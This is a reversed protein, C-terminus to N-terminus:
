EVRSALNHERDPAAQLCSELIVEWMIERGAVGDAPVEALPLAFPEPIPEPLGIRETGVAALGGHQAM